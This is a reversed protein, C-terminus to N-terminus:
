GLKERLGCDSVLLNIKDSWEKFDKVLFGNFNNIVVSRNLGIDSAVIPIGVSM